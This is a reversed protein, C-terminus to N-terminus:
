HAWVPKAKLLITTIGLSFGYKWELLHTYINHICLYTYTQQIQENSVKGFTEPVPQKTEPMRMGGGLHKFVEM